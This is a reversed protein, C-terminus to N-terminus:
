IIEWPSLMGDMYKFLIYCNKDDTLLLINRVSLVPSMAVPGLLNHDVRGRFLPIFSNEIYNSVYSMCAASLFAFNFYTTHKCQFKRAYHFLTVYPFIDQGDVYRHFFM